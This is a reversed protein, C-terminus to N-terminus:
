NLYIGFRVNIIHMKLVNDKETTKYDRYISYLLLIVIGSVERVFIMACLFHM